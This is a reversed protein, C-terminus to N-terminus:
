VAEEENRVDTRIPTSPLGLMSKKHAGGAGSVYEEVSVVIRSPAQAQLWAVGASFRPGDLAAKRRAERASVPGIQNTALDGLVKVIAEGDQRLQHMRRRDAVTSAVTNVTAAGYEVWAAAAALAGVSIQSEGNIVALIAALKRCNTTMRGFLRAANASAAQLGDIRPYIDREYLAKADPTFEIPTSLFAGGPKLAAYAQKVNEAVKRTLDDRGETPAPIAVLKDRAVYLYLFRNGLGNDASAALDKDDFLLGTLEFPTISASISGYPEKCRVPSVKAGTEITVCDYINRIVASLISGPRRVLALVSGVESLNVLLRKEMVGPDSRQDDEGQGDRPDRIAYILGEGSSVGRLTVPPEALAGFLEQWPEVTVPAPLATIAALAASHARVADDLASKPDALVDAIRSREAKLAAIQENLTVIKGEHSAIIEEYERRTTPAYSKAALRARCAAVESETATHAADLNAIDADARLLDKNTLGRVWDIHAKADDAARRAADHDAADSAALFSLIHINAINCIMPALHDDAFAASTGKRGVGSPGVQLLFVNLSLRQDGLPVCFPRLCMSVQAIVQTAVGVKTAEFNKTAAEVITALPGYYAKPDIDPMRRAIIAEDTEDPAESDEATDGPSAGDGAAKQVTVDDNQDDPFTPTLPYTTSTGVDYLFIGGGQRIKIFAAESNSVRFPAECRLKGGPKMNATWEALTKVVGRSEIETEATLPGLVISHLSAGMSFSVTTGTKKGYRALSTADPLELGGIDLPGGGPNVLRIGADIVSYGPANSVNPKANFVLRGSVLVALDIFTRQEHGVIKGPEKRSYRPSPFSLGENVTEIKLYERAVEIKSPHSVRILAHTPEGPAGSGKVVRASSGRYEVRECSSIGPLLKELRALREALTLKKWEDPMGEPNDADLLVWISPQM